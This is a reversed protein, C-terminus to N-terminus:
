QGTGWIASRIALEDGEASTELADAIRALSEAVSALAMLRADDEARLENARYQVAREPETDAMDGDFQWGQRRDIADRMEDLYNM